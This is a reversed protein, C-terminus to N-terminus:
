RAKQPLSRIAVAATPPIGLMISYHGSKNPQVSQTEMWLPAGGQSEKYLSFTVGVVSILPRGSVDALTGGYNVLKPVVTNTSVASAGVPIALQQALGAVPFSCVAAILSLRLGLYRRIM